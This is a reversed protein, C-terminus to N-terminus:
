LRIRMGESLPKKKPNPILIKSSKTLQSQTGVLTNSRIVDPLEIFHAKENQVVWVGNKGNEQTLASPDFTFINKFVETKIAVQAQENMYFPIPLTDFKVGVEREQTISDSIASIRAVKGQFSQSGHSRLTIIAEQNLKIKAALREDVYAKIWLTKPDVIRIINQSPTVNQAVQADKAIVLGDVPAYIKLRSLKVKLAEISKQAKLTDSKSSSIRAKSAAIQANISALDAKAKDYEAKAAYKQAYLNAYREYTIQLLVKQAQLSEIEKQLAISEHEIKQLSAKSEDLLLPLDVGDITAILDGKKVWLGEDTYIATIKGGIQASLPYIEKADVNGIGFVEVNLTGVKPNITEYTTKPIYIKFYFASAV